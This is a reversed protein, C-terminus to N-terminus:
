VKARKKQELAVAKGESRIMLFKGALGSGLHWRGEIETAEGNLVGEYTIPRYHLPPNVDYTKVFTIASGQRNGSLLAFLTPGPVIGRVNAEHTTGSLVNGSEILTAVFAVSMGDSYSYLGNWVGTLNQPEARGNMDRETKPERRLRM